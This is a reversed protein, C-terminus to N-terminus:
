QRTGEALLLLMKESHHLRQPNEGCCHGTAESEGHWSRCALALCPPWNRSIATFSSTTSITDLNPSPLRAQRGSQFRRKSM